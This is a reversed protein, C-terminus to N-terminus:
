KQGYQNCWFLQEEIEEGTLVLHPEVRCFAKYDLAKWLADMVDNTTGHVFAEVVKSANEKSVKKYRRFEAKDIEDDLIEEEAPTTKFKEKYAYLSTLLDDLKGKLKNLAEPSAGREQFYTTPTRVDYSELNKWKGPSGVLDQLKRERKEKATRAQQKKVRNREKDKGIDGKFGRAEQM